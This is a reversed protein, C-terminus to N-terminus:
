VSGVSYMVMEHTAQDKLMGLVGGVLSCANVAEEFYGIVESMSFCPPDDTISLEMFGPPCSPTSIAVSIM